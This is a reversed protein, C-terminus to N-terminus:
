RSLFSEVGPHEAEALVGENRFRQAFDETVQSPIPLSELISSNCARLPGEVAGAISDDAPYPLCAALNDMLIKNTINRDRQKPFANESSDEHYSRVFNQEEGTSSDTDATIISTPAATTADSGGGTEGSIIVPRRPVAYELFFTSFPLQAAPVVPTYRAASYLRTRLEEEVAPAAPGPFAAANDVKELVSQLYLARDCEASWEGSGRGHCGELM